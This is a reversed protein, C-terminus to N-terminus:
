HRLAMVAEEVDAAHNQPKVKEFVTAIRGRPDIVFTTRNVGWYRKGLMSKETWVGYRDAIAHDTDAILRYPLQYKAKFKRHSEVSDPSVGLM